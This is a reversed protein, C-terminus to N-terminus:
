KTPSVSIPYVLKAAFGAFAAGIFHVFISFEKNMLKLLGPKMMPRINHVIGMNRPLAFMSLFKKEAIQHTGREFNDYM